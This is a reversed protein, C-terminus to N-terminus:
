SQSERLAAIVLMLSQRLPMTPQWGEGTHTELFRHFPVIDPRPQVEDSDALQRAQVPPGGDALLHTSRFGGHEGALTRSTLGEFETWTEELTWGRRGAIHYTAAGLQFFPLARVLASAVDNASCWHHLGQPPTPQKGNQVANMWDAFLNMTQNGSHQPLMDHVVINVGQFTPTLTETSRHLMIQRTSPSLHDIEAGPQVLHVANPPAHEQLTIAHPFTTCEASFLQILPELRNSPVFFRYGALIGKHMFAETLPDMLGGMVVSLAMDYRHLVQVDLRRKRNPHRRCQVWFFPSKKTNKLQFLSYIRQIQARIDRM